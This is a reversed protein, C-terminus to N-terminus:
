APGLADDDDAPLRVGRLILVTEYGLAAAAAALVAQVAYVAAPVPRWLGVVAAALAAAGAARPVAARLRAAWPVAPLPVILVPPRLAPPPRVPVLDTPDDRNLTRSWRSLLGPRHAQPTLTM